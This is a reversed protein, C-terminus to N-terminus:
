QAEQAQIIEKILGMISNDKVGMPDAIERLGAIGKDDAIKELEERTYVARPEQVDELDPTPATLAELEKEAETEADTKQPVEPELKVPAPNVEEKVPGAEGREWHQNMPAGVKRNKVADAGVGGQESVGTEDDFVEISTLAGLRNIEAQSVADESVGNIFKVTGLYATYGSMGRGTLKVKKM